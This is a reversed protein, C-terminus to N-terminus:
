FVTGFMVNWSCFVPEHLEFVSMLIPLLIGNEKVNVNVVSPVVSRLTSINVWSTDDLTVSEGVATNDTQWGVTVWIPLLMAPTSAECTTPIIFAVTPSPFTQIQTVSQQFIYSYM